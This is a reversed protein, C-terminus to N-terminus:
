KFLGERHKKKKNKLRTINSKLTRIQKKLDIVETDGSTIEELTFEKILKNTYKNFLKVYKELEIYTKCKQKLIHHKSWHQITTDLKDM